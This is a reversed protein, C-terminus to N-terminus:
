IRAMGYGMGLSPGALGQQALFPLIRGISDGQGGFPGAQVGGYQGAFGGGISTPMLQQPWQQQQQYALQPMLQQTFSAQQAAIPLVRAVLDAAQVRAVLDASQAIHQPLYPLTRAILDAAQVRAILDAAQMLHQLQHGHGHIGGIGGMMSQGFVPNQQQGGGYPQQYPSQGFLPNQLQQGFLPNQQQWGGYPQQYPSQGFLPNQQQWGGFPQQYPSQGFLPNQQQQGFLPNQQLWGGYLQQNGVGLPGLGGAMGQPTFVQALYPAINGNPIADPMVREGIENCSKAGAFAAACPRGALAARNDGSPPFHFHVPFGRGLARPKNRELRAFHSLQIILWKIYRIYKGSKRGFTTRASRIGCPEFNQWGNSIAAALRHL